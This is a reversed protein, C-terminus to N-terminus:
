VRFPTPTATTPEFRGSTGEPIAPHSKLSQEFDRIVIANLAMDYREIRSLHLDLLEVASIQRDRLAALMATAPAFPDVPTSM